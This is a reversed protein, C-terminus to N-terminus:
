YDNTLLNDNFYFKRWFADIDGLDGRANEILPIKDQSFKWKKYIIEFGNEVLFNPLSYFYKLKDKNVINQFHM